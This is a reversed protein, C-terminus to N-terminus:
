QHEHNSLVSDPQQQFWAIETPPLIVVKGLDFVPFLCAKDKYQYAEVTATCIDRSNRWKARLVPFWEGQRAGVIPLKPLRPQVEFPLKTRFSGYLMVGVVLLTPALLAPRALTDLIWTMNIM